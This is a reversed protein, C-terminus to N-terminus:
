SEVTQIERVELPLDSRTQLDLLGAGGIQDHWPCAWHETVALDDDRSAQQYVHTVNGDPWPGGTSTVGNDVTGDGWAVDFGTWSCAMSVANHFGQFVFPLHDPSGIQLYARLGTVAYGPEVRLTPQPL